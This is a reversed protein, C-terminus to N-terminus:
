RAKRAQTKQSSSTSARSLKMRLNARKPGNCDWPSSPVDRPILQEVPRVNMGSRSVLDPAPGKPLPGGPRSSMTAPQADMPQETDPALGGMLEVVAVEDPLTAQLEDWVPRFGWCWSCMPDVILYGTLAM